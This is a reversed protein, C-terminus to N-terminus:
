FDSSYIPNDIIEYYEIYNYSISRIRNTTECLNKTSLEFSNSDIEKTELNMCLYSHNSGDIDSFGVIFAAIKKVYGQSLTKKYPIVAKNTATIDLFSGNEIYADPSNIAM